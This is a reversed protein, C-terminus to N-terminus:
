SKDLMFVVRIRTDQSALIPLEKAAEQFIALAAESTPEM